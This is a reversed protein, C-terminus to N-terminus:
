KLEFRCLISYSLKIKEFDIQLEKDKSEFLSSQRKLMVNSYGENDGFSYNGELEQIFIARGVSQGIASALYESKDKAAKVAAIKVERRYKEINSNDLKDILVNSIGVSELEIFVKSATKSNRVTLLYEKSLLIENKALWYYKFNSAMDKILLDKDVDIGISKLKSIMKSEQDSLSVRTKNDKENIVIKILILDPAIEMESKGIVEIYNQNIFTKDGTQAEIFLPIFSLLLLIKKM